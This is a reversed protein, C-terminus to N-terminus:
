FKIQAGVKLNNRVTDVEFIITAYQFMARPEAPLWKAIEYHVFAASIFFLDVKHESPHFGLIPNSEGFQDPHRSVNRTQAWDMADVAFYVTERLTDASTWENSQVVKNDEEQNTIYPIHDDAFCNFSLMLIFILKFM